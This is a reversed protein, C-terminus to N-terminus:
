TVQHVPRTAPFRPGAEQLRRVTLSNRTKKADKVELPLQCFAMSTRLTVISM